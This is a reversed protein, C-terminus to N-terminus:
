AQNVDEGSSFSYELVEALDEPSAYFPAGIGQFFGHLQIMHASLETYRVSKGSKINRVTYVTKQYVGPHVFPCPIKGRNEDAAVEWTNEVLVPTGFGKLGARGVTLMKKGLMRYDIGLRTCAAHQDNLLTPLDRSDTGFFGDRSLKRPKMKEAAKALEPTMKM